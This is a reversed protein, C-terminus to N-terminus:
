IFHQDRKFIKMKELIMLIDPTVVNIKFPEAQVLIECKLFTQEKSKIQALPVGFLTKFWQVRFFNLHLGIM